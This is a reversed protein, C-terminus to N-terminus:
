QHGRGGTQQEEKWAVAASYLGARSVGLAKALAKAAATPPVGDSLLSILAAEADVSSPPPPSGDADEGAGGAGGARASAGPPRGIM